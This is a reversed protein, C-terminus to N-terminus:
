LLSVSRSVVQVLGQSPLLFVFRHLRCVGSYGTRLNSLDIGSEFIVRSVTM